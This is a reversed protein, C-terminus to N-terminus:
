LPQEGQRGAADEPAPSGAINPPHEQRERAEKEASERNSIGSRRAMSVEQQRNRDKATAERHGDTLIVHDLFWGNSDSGTELRAGDNLFKLSDAKRFSVM